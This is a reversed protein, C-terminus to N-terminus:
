APSTAIQGNARLGRTAMVVVWALLAVIPIFALSGILVVGVGVGLVRAKPGLIGARHGQVSLCAVSLGAAMMGAGGALGFGLANMLRLLDADPLPYSGLLESGSIAGMAIGGAAICSAAVGAAVIPLLSPTGTQSARDIRRWQGTLFTLLSLGALVLLLGTALHGAQNAHGTYDASWQRDPANNAPPSIAAVGALFFGVFAFGSLAEWRGIALYRATPVARSTTAMTTQTTM